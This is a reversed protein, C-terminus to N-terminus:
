VLGLVLVRAVIHDPDAVVLAPAVAVGMEVHDIRRQAEVVQHILPINLAVDFISAPLVVTAKTKAGEADYVPVKRDEGVTINKAM